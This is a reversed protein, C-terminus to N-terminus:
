GQLAEWTTFHIDDVIGDGDSDIDLRVITSSEIVIRITGSGVGESVLIEGSEPGQDDAAQLPGIMEYSLNGGLFASEMLSERAEGLTTTLSIDANLTLSQAGFSWSYIDAQSSRQLGGPTPTLVIVPFALSDWALLFNFEASAAYSDVGSAVTLDMDRLAYSLRFVDTRPDGDLERVFLLFSGDITYGDGDDCADFVLDFVDRESLAVPDNAPDGSVTVTGSVACTDIVPDGTIAVTAFLEFKSNSSLLDPAAPPSPFIQGGITAAVDFLQDAAQVVTASVAQANAATIDVWAVNPDPLPPAVLDCCDGNGGGGGGSCGIIAVIGMIAIVGRAIM